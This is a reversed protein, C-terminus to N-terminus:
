QRVSALKERCAYIYSDQPMGTQASRDTLDALPSLPNLLYRSVPLQTMTLQLLIAKQEVLRQAPIPVGGIKARLVSTTQLPPRGLLLALCGPTAGATLLGTLSTLRSNTDM